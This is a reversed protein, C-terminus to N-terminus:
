IRVDHGWLKPSSYVAIPWDEDDVTRGGWGLEIAFGSPTLFYFSTMHDNSHKGYSIIIPADDRTQIDDYARGLDDIDALEIMIHNLSPGTQGFCENMLGLSHHRPNCHFFSADADAWRIYDSIRFGLLERYFISCAALDKCVINVHGLGLTDMNFGRISRGFRVPLHSIFPGYYAENVTGDPDAFRIFEEVGREVAEDSTGRSIATGNAALQGALAELADKGATEWGYFAHAEHDAPYLIMRHVHDDFRLKLPAAAERPLVEAGIVDRAIVTWQDIKATRYGVYGLQTVAASM